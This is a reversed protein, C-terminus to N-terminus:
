PHAPPASDLLRTLFSWTSEEFCYHRGLREIAAYDEKKLPFDWEFLNQCLNEFAVGEEGHIALNRSDEICPQIKEARPVSKRQSLSDLLRQLDSNM